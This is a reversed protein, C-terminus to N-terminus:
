VAQIEIFNLLLLTSHPFRQHRLCPSRVTEHTGVRIGGAPNSVIIVVCPTLQGLDLIWVVVFNQELVIVIRVGACFDVADISGVAVAEQMLKKVIMERLSSDDDEQVDFVRRIKQRDMMICNEDKIDALRVGSPKIFPEFETKYSTNGGGALVYAPDAGYRQSLETIVELSM